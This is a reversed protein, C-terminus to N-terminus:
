FDHSFLNKSDLYDLDEQDFSFSELFDLVHELGASVFYGRDPPYKRIFLSFPPRPLLETNM